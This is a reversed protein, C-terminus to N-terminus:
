APKKNTVIGAPNVIISSEYSSKEQDVEVDFMMKLTNWFTKTESTPIQGQPLDAQAKEDFTYTMELALYRNSGDYMESSFEPKVKLNYNHFMYGLDMFSSYGRARISNINQPLDPNSMGLMLLLGELVSSKGSSNQGLFVNVRSLDDIKLYEIGRFNKIEINKFGDM